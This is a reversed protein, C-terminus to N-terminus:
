VLWTVIVKGVGQRATTGYRSSEYWRLADDGQTQGVVPQAQGLPQVQGSRLIGM